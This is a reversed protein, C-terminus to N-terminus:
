PKIEIWKFQEKVKPRTFFYIPILEFILIPLAFFVIIVIPTVKKATEEGKELNELAKQQYELKIEKAIRQKERTYYDEPPLIKSLPKIYAPISLISIIGLIIAAKRATENLKLIFIGCLM